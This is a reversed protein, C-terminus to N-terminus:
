VDDKCNVSFVSKLSSSLTESHCLGTCGQVGLGGIVIGGSGNYHKNCKGREKRITSTHVGCIGYVVYTGLVSNM